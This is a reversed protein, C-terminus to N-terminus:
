ENTPEPATDGALGYTCPHACPCQHEAKPAPESVPEPAPAPAPPWLSMYSPAGIARRSLFLNFLEDYLEQLAKPDATVILRMYADRVHLLDALAPSTAPLARFHDAFVIRTDAIAKKAAESMKRVLSPQETTQQAAYRALAGESVDTGEIPGDPQVAALQVALQECPNRVLGPPAYSWGSTPMPTPAQPHEHSPDTYQM